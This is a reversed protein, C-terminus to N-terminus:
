DDNKLSSRFEEWAVKKMESKRMLKMEIISQELSEKPLRDKDNSTM